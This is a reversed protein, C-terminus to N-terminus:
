IRGAGAVKGAQWVWGVDCSRDPSDPPARRWPLDAVVQLLFVCLLVLEVDTGARRALPSALERCAPRALVAVRLLGLAQTLVVFSLNPNCGGHLNSPPGLEM